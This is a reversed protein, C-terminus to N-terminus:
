VYDPFCCFASFVLISHISHNCMAIVVRSIVRANRCEPLKGFCQALRMTKIVNVGVGWLFFKPILGSFWSRYCQTHFSQISKSEISKTKSIDRPRKLWSCPRIAFFYVTAWFSSVTWKRLIQTRTPRRGVLLMIGRWHMWYQFHSLQYPSRTLQTHYFFNVNMKM